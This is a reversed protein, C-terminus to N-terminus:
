FFVNISLYKLFFIKFEKNFFKTNYNKIEAILKNEAQMIFMYEENKSRGLEFYNFDYLIFVM